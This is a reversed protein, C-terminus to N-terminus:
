EAIHLLKVRRHEWGELGQSYGRCWFLDCLRAVRAASGQVSVASLVPSPYSSSLMRIISLNPWKCNMTMAWQGHQLGSRSDTTNTNDPCFHDRRFTRSHAPVLTTTTTITINTINGDCLHGATWWSEQPAARPSWAFQCGVGGGVLDM